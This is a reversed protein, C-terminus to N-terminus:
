DTAIKVLQELTQSALIVFHVQSLERSIKIQNQNAKVYVICLGILVVLYLPIWLVNAFKAMLNSFLGALKKECKQIRMLSESLIDSIKM